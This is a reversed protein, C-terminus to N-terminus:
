LLAEGFSIRGSFTGVELVGVYAHGAAIYEDDLPQRMHTFSTTCAPNACAFPTQTWPVQDWEFDFGAMTRNSCRNDVSAAGCGYLVLRSSPNYKRRMEQRLLRTLLFLLASLCADDLSSHSLDTILKEAECM